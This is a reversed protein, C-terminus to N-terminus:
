ASVCLISDAALFYTDLVIHARKSKIYCHIQRKIILYAHYIIIQSQDIRYRVAFRSNMTAIITADLTLSAICFKQKQSQQQTLHPGRFLYSYQGSIAWQVSLPVWGVGM